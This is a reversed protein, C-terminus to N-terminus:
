LTAAVESIAEALREAIIDAESMSLCLPPAFGITDGDPMPRGIVGRKALAAAVRIGVKEAPDFLTRSAPDEALEVASLMGVGRVEGVIPLSGVTKRLKETFYTGTKAANEALGLKDILELNASGAAAPTKVRAVAQGSHHSYPRQKVAKTSSCRIFTMSETTVCTGRMAATRRSM